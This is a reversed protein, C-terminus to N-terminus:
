GGVLEILRGVIGAWQVKRAAVSTSAGMLVIASPLEGVIPGASSARRLGYAVAASRRATTGRVAPKAVMTARPVGILDADLIELDVQDSLNPVVV